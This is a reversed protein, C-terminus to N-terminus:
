NKVSICSPLAYRARAVRTISQFEVSNKKMKELYSHTDFADEQVQCICVAVNSCHDAVRELSATIDSLVFGQEITCNGNRLRRVHRNKLEIKLEDIVEEIPEVSRAISEDETEFGKVAAEVVDEVAKTIVKLEALAEDSFKMNKEYLEKASRMISVAHDSIREFDGICHLMISLDHSDKVNLDKQSLKVLYTGLGDEYRDVQEEEALVQEAKESDYDEILGIATNIADKVKNAMEVAVRRSQEVALAPKDLFRSDLLEMGTAETEKKDEEKDRITLIALKELVKSFPLLLLTAFVNFTTHVVAIGAANAAQNMFPFQVVANIAYFLVMFVVTGIINFYLHVMAARKANKKAGIASLLATICTGINQGMIIPIAASYGVAGTICLAQLIGVSASSSQIVATLIMGALLGLIPNSFKTLIGTFEPVDALPKVAGSMSEMGFM